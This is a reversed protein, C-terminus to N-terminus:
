LHLAQADHHEPQFSNEKKFNDSLNSNEKLVLNEQVTFKEVIKTSKSSSTKHSVEELRKRFAKIIFSKLFNFDEFRVENKMPHVNIDVWDLPCKINLILQPFRDHFMVDRYAIKFITNLTKDNIIRGNVFVFQNNSNSYNCTPLCLLGQLLLNNKVESLEFANQLIQELSM